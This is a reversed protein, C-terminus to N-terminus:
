KEWFSKSFTSNVFVDTIIRMLFVNLYETSTLPLMMKLFTRTYKMDCSHIACHLQKTQEIEESITGRFLFPFGNSKCLSLKMKKSIRSNQRPVKRLSSGFHLFELIRSWELVCVIKSILCHCAIESRIERERFRFWLTSQYNRSVTIGKKIVIRDKYKRMENVSLTFGM